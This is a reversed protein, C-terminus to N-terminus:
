NIRLLAAIVSPLPPFLWVATLIFAYTSVLGFKHKKVLHWIIAGTNISELQAKQESKVAQKVNNKVPTELYEM